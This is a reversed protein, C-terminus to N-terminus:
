RTKQIFLVKEKHLTDLDGLEKRLRSAELRNHGATTKMRMGADADQRNQPSLAFLVAAAVISGARGGHCM